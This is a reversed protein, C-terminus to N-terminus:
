QGNLKRECVHREFVQVRTPRFHKMCYAEAKGHPTRFSMQLSKTHDDEPFPSPLNYRVIVEDHNFWNRRTDIQDKIVYVIVAIPQM